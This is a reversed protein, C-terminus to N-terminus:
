RPGIRAVLSGIRRSSKEQPRLMLQLYAHLVMAGVGVALIGGVVLLSRMTYLESKGAVLFCIGSGVFIGGM